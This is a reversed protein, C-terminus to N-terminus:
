RIMQVKLSLVTCDPRRWGSPQIWHSSSTPPPYSLIEKHGRARQPTQYDIYNPAALYYTTLPSPTPFHGQQWSGEASEKVFVLTPRHKNRKCNETFKASNLITITMMKVHQLRHEVPSKCTAGNIYCYSTSYKVSDNPIYKLILLAPQATCAILPACSTREFKRM